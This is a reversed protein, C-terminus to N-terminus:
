RLSYFVANQTEKLDAMFDNDTQNLAHASKVAGCGSAILGLIIFVTIGILTFPRSM